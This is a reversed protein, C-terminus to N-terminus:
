ILLHAKGVVWDKEKEYGLDLAITSENMMATNVRRCTMPRSSRTVDVIAELL